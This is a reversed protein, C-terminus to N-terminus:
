KRKKRMWALGAAAGAAMVGLTGPGTAGLPPSDGRVAPQWPTIVAAPLVAYAEKRSSPPSPAQASSRSPPSPRPSSPLRSSAPPAAAESTVLVVLAASSASTGPLVPPAAIPALCVFCPQTGIAACTLGTKKCYANGTTKCADAPCAPASSPPPQSATRIASSPPPSAPPPAISSAATPSSARAVALPSSASTPLSSPRSSPPPLPPPSSPPPVPPFSQGQSSAVPTVSSSSSSSASSAQSSTVSQASSAPWDSSASSAASPRSAASSLMATLVLEPLTCCRAYCVNPLTNKNNATKQCMWGDGSPTPMSMDQRGDTNSADDFGGGTVFTGQPCAVTVPTAQHGTVSATTCTMRDEGSKRRGCLAFCQGSAGTSDDDFCRWGNVSDQPSLADEDKNKTGDIFGGGLLQYSQPCVPVLNDSLGGERYTVISEYQFADCCVATCVGTSDDNNGECEWGQGVEFPRSYDIASAANGDWGGGMIVTGAPCAVRISGSGYLPRTLLSCTGGAIDVAKTESSPEKCDLGHGLFAFINKYLKGNQGSCRKQFGQDQATFIVAGHGKEPKIQALVPAGTSPIRGAFEPKTTGWTVTGGLTMEGSSDRFVKGVGALISGTGGAIEQCGDTTQGYQIRGSFTLGLNAAIQNARLQCSANPPGYIGGGYNDGAEIVLDNGTLYFDRIAAIETKGLPFSEGACGGHVWLVNYSSLADKTITKLSNRNALTINFGLAQMERFEPLEGSRDYMTPQLNLYLIRAPTCAAASSSGGQSTTAQGWLPAYPQNWWFASGALVGLLAAALLVRQFM